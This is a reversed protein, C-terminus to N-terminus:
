SDGGSWASFAADVAAPLLTRGPVSDGGSPMAPSFLRGSAALGLPVSPGTSSTAAALQENAAFVSVPQDDTPDSALANIGSGIMGSLAAAPAVSASVAPAPPAAGGGAPAAGAAPDTLPNTGTPLSDTLPSAAVAVASTEATFAAAPQQDSAAGSNTPGPGLATPGTSASDAIASDAAVGSAIASGSAIGSAVASQSNLYNIVWLADLATISNDGNVDLFPAGGPNTAPLTTVNQANLYNIIVLADIATVAGSANVDLPNAPNRWPTATVIITADATGHPAEANGSFDVATSNFAYTHGLQANFTASTQTTGTMWPVFSGGDASVYVTYSAIGAGQGDSGSWSVTFSTQSTAYPLATVQSTPATTNVQWNYTAPASAVSDLDVAEVELTHGGSALNSFTVPNTAPTFASGDLSVVYTLQNAPTSADGTGTFAFTASTQNTNAPPTQSFAVTPSALLISFQDAPTIASTGGATTVTVDVTGSVNPAQVVIQNATDSEIAASTNGFEVLTAGSLNTGSITILGSPTQESSPSVGTVTPTAVFTFQDAATVASTGGPGIVTINVTGVSGQPSTVVLQNASDNVITAPTGGFDVATAGALNTGSITVTTGGALPGAAPAVGTITPVTSTVNLTYTQSTTDSQSDTATVKFTVSGAALPDGTVDLESTSTSISLGAPLAGSLISYTLVKGGVGGAATISQSYATGVTGSAISGPSLTVAEGYNILDPVLLNAVPTGLGTVQDYGVTAVNNKDSGSTVDHFDDQPLSYIASLLETSSASNLKSQGAAVRGQDALAVLGAWVPTGLSTGGEESWPTAAGNDYSDYVAVGTNPNGDFSM